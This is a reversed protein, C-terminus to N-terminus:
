AGASLRACSQRLHRLAATHKGVCAQLEPRNSSPRTGSRWLSFVLESHSILFGVWPVSLQPLSGCYLRMEDVQRSVEAYLEMDLWTRVMEASQEEYRELAAALQRAIAREM